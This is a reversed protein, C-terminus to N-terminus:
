LYDDGRYFSSFLRHFSMKWLSKKTGGTVVKLNEKDACQMKGTLNVIRTKREDPFTM